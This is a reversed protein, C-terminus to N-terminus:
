PLGLYYLFILWERLWAMRMAPSLDPGKRDQIYCRLESGIKRFIDKVKYLCKLTKISM